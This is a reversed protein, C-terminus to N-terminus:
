TMKLVEYKNDLIKYTVTNKKKIYDKIIEGSKNWYGDNLNVPTVTYEVECILYADLYCNRIINIKSDKLAPKNEFIQLSNIYYSFVDKLKTFQESNYEFLVVKKNSDKMFDCNTTLYTNDKSRNLKCTRKGYKIFISDEKLLYKGKILKDKYLYKFSNDSYLTLNKSNSAFSYIMDIEKKSQLDVKLLNLKFFHDVLVFIIIITCSLFIIQIYDKKTYMLNEKNINFHKKIKKSKTDKKNNKIAKDNKLLLKEEILNNEKYNKDIRKIKKNENNKKSVKIDNKKNEEKKLKTKIQEDIEDIEIIDIEKNKEKM